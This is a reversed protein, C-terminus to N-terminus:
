KIPCLEGPLEDAELPEDNEEWQDFLRELDVDSYDRIDKKAWDPKEKASTVCNINCTLALLLFVLNTRSVLRLMRAQKM